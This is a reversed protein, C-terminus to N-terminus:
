GIVMPRGHADYLVRGEREADQKVGQRRRWDEIPVAGRIYRPDDADIERATREIADRRGCGPCEFVQYTISSDMFLLNGIFEKGAWTGHQPCTSPTYQYRGKYPNRPIRAIEAQLQNLTPM